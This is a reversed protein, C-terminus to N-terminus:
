VLGFVLSVGSFRVKNNMFLGFVGIESTLRVFYCRLNIFLLDLYLDHM